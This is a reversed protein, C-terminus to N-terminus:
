LKRIHYAEFCGPCLAPKDLCGKCRYSTEKMTKNARCERCKLFVKARKHNPPVPIMEPWHNQIGPEAPSDTIPEEDKRSKRNANRHSIKMLKLCDFREEVQIYSRIISERFELMQMKNNCHKNYIYYANWMMMDLIHFIIKKYWRITKKPSSYYAMMQDSKDIGSMHANYDVVEVPKFMTKGHKNKCVVLRPHHKTTIMNVPRKDKWRSVYVNGRRQWVHEGKKLNQTFLPKPNDKRDKRLTGVTHTDHNLLKESLTTSNYFNDMYLVHGKFLYKDMLTMVLKQVKPENGEDDLVTGKGEYIKFNLIYGDATTVIYFKIGYKSKKQKMYQRFSLRGRFLLMSEDLSLECGPNYLDQFRTIVKRVFLNVKEMGKSNVTSVYLCRLLQEFRRGSMTYPFVPHFYLSDTFTFLKRLHCSNVQGQLLCLGLFKRIEDPNTPHFNQRRAGRTHPRQTNCLAQGYANTCSIILEILETTMFQNMVDIPTTNNDCHFTPGTTSDDFPLELLPATTDTWPEDDVQPDQPRVQRRRVNDNRNILPSNSTIQLDSAPQIGDVDQTQTSLSVPVSQPNPSESIDSAQDIRDLEQISQRREFSSCPHSVSSIDNEIQDHIPLEQHHNPSSLSPSTQRSEQLSQITQHRDLNSVPEGVSSVEVEMQNQIPSEEHKESSQPTTETDMQHNETSPEPRLQEPTGKSVCSTHDSYKEPEIEIQPKGLSSTEVEMPPEQHKQPSQPITEIEMHNREISPEPGLQEPKGKDVSDKEQEIEIQPKDLLSTEVEMQNLIPPDQHKKPSQPTTEIEMQNREISTGPKSQELTGKSSCSARDSDEPELEIKIFNTHTHIDATVTMSRQITSQVEEDPTDESIPTPMRAPQSQLPQNLTSPLPDSCSNGSEESSDENSDPVYDADSGYEGNSDYYPDVISEDSSDRSKTGRDDSESSREAESYSEDQSLEETAAIDFLNQLKDVEQVNISTQPQKQAPIKRCTQKKKRAPAKKPM